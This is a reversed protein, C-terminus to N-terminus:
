ALAELVAKTFNYFNEVTKINIREDPSHPFEITPGFSIMDMGPVKGGLIACELGAHIATIEPERNNIKQYVEKCTTLVDSSLSPKWGPYGGEQTVDANILDGLCKISKAVSKVSTDLSSRTLLVITVQNKNINAVGLNTSTEVLGEVAASYQLVGNPAVSIFRLLRDSDNKKLVKGTATITEAVTIKDTDTNKDNSDGSEKFAEVTVALNPEQIELEASVLKEFESIATKFLEQKEAPIYVLAESERPIANRKSGGDFFALKVNEEELNDYAAFIARGLLKIANGRGLNIDVGSHGGKLGNVVLKLPIFGKPATEYEIDFDIRSDIGGACGIYLYGDEESDLNLLTKGEIISPNMEFVGTMGSEEDVTFFLEVPGHIAEKDDLLALGAAMAIGNDAGLTTGDATIWEGDRLTTIPDTEFNHNSSKNKECVMDLHGQIVIVPADEHGKTAPIKIVVNGIDDRRVECNHGYGVKEIYEAMAKENGSERPIECIDSFYNWVLEPKLGEFAKSTM